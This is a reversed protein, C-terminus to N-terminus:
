GALVLLHLVLLHLVLLEPVPFELLELLAKQLVRLLWLLQLLVGQQQYPQAVEKLREEGVMAMLAWPRHPELQVELAVM